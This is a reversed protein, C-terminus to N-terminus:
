ASTTFEHNHPRIYIYVRGWSATKALRNQPAGGDLTSLSLVKLEAPKIHLSLRQLKGAFFVSINNNM